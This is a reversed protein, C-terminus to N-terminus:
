EFDKVSQVNIFLWHRFFFLFVSTIGPILIFIASIFLHISWNDSIGDFTLFM